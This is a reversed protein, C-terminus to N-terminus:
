RLGGLEALYWFPFTIWLVLGYETFIDSDEDARTSVHQLLSASHEQVPIPPGKAFHSSNCRVIMKM